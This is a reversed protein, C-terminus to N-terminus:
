APCRVAGKLLPMEPRAARVLLALAARREGAPATDTKM